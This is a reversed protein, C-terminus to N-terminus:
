SDPSRGRMRDLEHEIQEIPLQLFDFQAFLPNTLEGVLEPLTSSIVRGEVLLRANIEEQHCTGSGFWRKMPELSGTKRKQLGNWHVQVSVTDANLKRCMRGAHLLCEGIRWVVIGPDLLSGPQINSHRPSLEAVADEDYGRLLYLQGRGSARWFDAHAPDSFAGGRMWCEVVDGVPYPSRQPDSSPWWWAPWGTEKGVIELLIRKLEGLGIAPSPPPNVAYSFSWWGDKYIDADNPHETFLQHLRGKSARTWAELEAQFGAREQAGKQGPGSLPENKDTTTDGELASALGRHGLLAIADRVSEVLEDRRARM